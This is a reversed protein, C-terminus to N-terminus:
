VTRTRALSLLLIQCTVKRSASFEVLLVILIIYKKLTIKYHYNM